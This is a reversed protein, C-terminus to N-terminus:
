AIARAPNVNRPARSVQPFKALDEEWIYTFLSFFTKGDSRPAEPVTGCPLDPGPRQMVNM